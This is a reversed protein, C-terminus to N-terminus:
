PMRKAPRPRSVKLPLRPTVNAESCKRFGLLPILDDTEYGSPSIDLQDGSRAGIGSFMPKFSRRVVLPKRM